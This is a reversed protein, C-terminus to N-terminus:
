IGLEKSTDKVIEDIPRYSNLKILINAKEYYNILM